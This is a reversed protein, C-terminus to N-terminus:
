CMMSLTIMIIIIAVVEVTCFPMMVIVIVMMIVITIVMPVVVVMSVAVLIVIRIVVIPVTTTIGLSISSQAMEAISLESDVFILLIICPLFFLPLYRYILRRYIMLICAVEHHLTDILLRNLDRHLVTGPRRRDPWRTAQCIGVPIALLACDVEDEGHILTSPVM